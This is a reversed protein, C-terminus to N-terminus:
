HTSFAALVAAALEDPAELPGFHSLHGYLELRGQPLAEVAGPAFAAPGFDMATGMAITVPCTVKSLRSFTDHSGAMRFTAAESAGRCKIRVTGDDLPAFGGAVYAYLADARFRNLPPKGAYNAVAAEISEFVERRREAAEAMPNPRALELQMPPPLIPEFLWLGAFTGPRALEAMLLAAGGMSHGVGHVPTTGIDDLVALIDDRFGEWAFDVEDPVESDGHGRLDAGICHFATTLGGDAMPQFVRGHMGTAHSFLLPPASPDGGLEHRAVRVGDTSPVLM